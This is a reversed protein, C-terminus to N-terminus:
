LLLVVLLANYGMVGFWYLKCTCRSSRAGMYVLLLALDYALYSLIPQSAYRIRLDEQM